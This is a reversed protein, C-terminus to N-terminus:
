KDEMDNSATDFADFNLSGSDESSFLDSFESALSKQTKANNIYEARMTLQSMQAMALLQADALPLAGALRM